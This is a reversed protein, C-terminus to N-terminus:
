QTGKLKALHTRIEDHLPRAQGTYAVHLVAEELLRVTEAHPDHMAILDTFDPLTGTHGCFQRVIIDIKEALERHWALVPAPQPQDPM